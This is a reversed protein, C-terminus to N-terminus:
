TDGTDKAQKSRDKENSNQAATSGVRAETQDVEAHSTCRRDQWRGALTV